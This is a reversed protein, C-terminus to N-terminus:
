PTKGDNKGPSPGSQVCRIEAPQCAPGINSCFPKDAMPDRRCSVCGDTWRLCQPPGTHVSTEHPESSSTQSQPDPPLPLLEDARAASPALRGTLAFATLLFVTLYFRRMEIGGDGGVSRRLAGDSSLSRCTRDEKLYAYRVFGAM